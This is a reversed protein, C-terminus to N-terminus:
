LSKRIEDLINEDNIEIPSDEFCELSIRNINDEGYWSSLKEVGHTYNEAYIIGSKSIEKEELDDYYDVHFITPYLKKM